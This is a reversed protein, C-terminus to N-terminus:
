DQKVTSGKLAIDSDAKLSIKGSGTIKIDKGKITITGDKKMIISAAGTQLQIQDGAIIALKKEVKLEDDKGVKVERSEGIEVKENKNVRESRNEGIEIRENKAVSETRSEGITINETKSVNETRKGDITITEDRGVTETRDRGIGVTEDRGIKIREDRGVSDDRDNEVEHTEDKEAHIYLEESGKMDEFRIENFNEEGGGKTSRSKWGSQTQNAPLAYPPMQEANYVRGTIIPQDPDGELFDVVVEQGIRPIQVFGWKTGAWLTSVRVWCSSKDDKQGLRDWHFQVKVRGYKDVWIEEGAPGVVVATQTGRMEPKPTTRPPRFPVDSPIALFDNRYEFGGEGGARYGDQQGSHRVRLVAYARNVDGRYFDAVEVLAGTQLGRVTSSGRV